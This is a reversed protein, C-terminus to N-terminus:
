VRTKRQYCLFLTNATPMIGIRATEPSNKLAKTVATQLDLLPHLLLKRVFGDGKM